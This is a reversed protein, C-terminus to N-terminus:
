LTCLSSNVMKRQELVVLGHIEVDIVFFFFNERGTKCADVESLRVAIIHYHRTKRRDTKRRNLKVVRTWDSRASGVQPADSDCSL